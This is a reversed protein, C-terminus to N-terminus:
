AQTGFRQSSITSNRYGALLQVQELTAAAYQRSASAMAIAFEFLLMTRNRLAPLEESGKPLSRIRQEVQTVYQGTLAVTEALCDAAAAKRIAAELSKLRQDSVGGSSRPCSSVTEPM